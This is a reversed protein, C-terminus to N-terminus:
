THQEGPVVDDRRRRFTCKLEAEVLDIDTVGLEVSSGPDLPPLSPVRIYLPLGDVKVM